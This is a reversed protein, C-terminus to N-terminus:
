WACVVTRCRSSSCAAFRGDPRSHLSEARQLAPQRPHLGAGHRHDGQLHLRHGVGAGRTGDVVEGLRHPTSRPTAPSPRVGHRTGERDRCFVECIANAEQPDGVKTGTGHAEVYAVDAPNVRAERYVEEILQAQREGSPFTIGQEKQGDTNSKAHVVHAYIRRASSERQLLMAGVGEGRVYGDGIHATLV